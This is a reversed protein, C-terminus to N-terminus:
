SAPASSQSVLLVVVLLLRSIIITHQQTQANEQKTPRDTVVGLGFETLQLLQQLRLM